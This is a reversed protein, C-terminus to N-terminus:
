SASPPFSENTFSAGVKITYAHNPFLVALMPSLFTYPYSVSITVLDGPGGANNPCGGGTNTCTMSVDGTNSSNLYGLSTNQLTQVVSNYRTISCSGNSGTICQGTIAYRGAQRVANQLTLKKSFLYGFDMAAMSFSVLLMLSIAVETVSQGSDGRLTM